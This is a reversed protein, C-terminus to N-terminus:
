TAINSIVVLKSLIEFKVLIRKYNKFKKSKRTELILPRVRYAFAFFTKNKFIMYNLLNIYSNTKITSIVQFLKRFLCM